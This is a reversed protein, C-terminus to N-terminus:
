QSTQVLSPRLLLYFPFTFRPHSFPVHFPSTFHPSLVPVYPMLDSGETCLATQRSMKTDAPCQPIVTPGGPTHMTAAAVLTPFLDVASVLADTRRGPPLGPVHIILPIRTAHEFNSHKAFMANDGLHYGHDGWLAVVTNSAFPSAELSDIVRGINADTFSVCAWYAKRMELEKWGPFTTNDFPYERTMLSGHSLPAGPYVEACLDTYICSLQETATAPVSWMGLVAQMGINPANTPKNRNPALTITDNPYL